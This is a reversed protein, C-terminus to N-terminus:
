QAPKSVINTIMNRARRAMNKSNEYLKTFLGQSSRLNRNFRREVPKAGNYRVYQGTEQDYVCSSKTGNHWMTCPGLIEGHIYNGEYCYLGKECWETYPGHKDGYEYNGKESMAGNQHYEIYPGHEKGYKYNGKKSIGDAHYLVYSGHREGHKYNGEELISGDENYETFRGHEEGNEYNGHMIIRGKVRKVRYLVYPGHQVGHVFNREELMSGNETYVTVSGHEKGNEYNGKIKKGNGLWLTYPGHREGQKYEYEYCKKIEGDHDCFSFSFTGSCLATFEERTLERIVRLRDTNDSYRLRTITGVAEVEAYHQGKRRDIDEVLDLARPYFRFGSEDHTGSFVTTEGLKFQIGNCKWDNDFIMYGKM